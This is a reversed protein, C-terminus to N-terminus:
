NIIKLILFNHAWFHKSTFKVFFNFLLIVGINYSRILSVSVPPPFKLVDKLVLMERVGYGSLYITFLFLLCVIDRMFMSTFITFLYILDFGVIYSFNYAM